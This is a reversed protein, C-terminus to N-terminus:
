FCGHAYLNADPIFVWAMAEIFKANYRKQHVEIIFLQLFAEMVEACVELYKVDSSREKALKKTL